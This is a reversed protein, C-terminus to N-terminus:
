KAELWMRLQRLPLKMSDARGACAVTLGRVMAMIAEAATEAGLRARLEKKQMGERLIETLFRKWRRNNEAVVSRLVRDRTSRANLEALVAFMEPKERAQRVLADLHVALKRSPGIGKAHTTPGRGISLEQVIYDLVGRILAEKGAFYYHLTAHDLGARQAIERMRLGEFGKEAIAHYAARIVDRRRHASRITGELRGRQTPKM